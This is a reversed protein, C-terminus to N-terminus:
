NMPIEFIVYESKESSHLNFETTGEIGLGDRRELTINNISLQGEILFIYAGNGPKYFSYTFEKGKDMKGFSVYAQQNIKLHPGELKVSGAVLKLENSLQKFDFTQTEYSPKLGKQDPFIWIQLLSLEESNSANFESHWIGTGASMVQVQGRSIIENGGTNDTHKVAGALPITIIEMNDHPHLGFGKGPAITDDNLVRLKGFHIREPNYYDAFSFTFNTILWGHDASGRTNSKHLTTKM